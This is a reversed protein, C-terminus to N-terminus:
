AIGMNRCIESAPTGGVTQRLALAIQEGKFREKPM